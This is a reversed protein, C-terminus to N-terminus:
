QRLSAKCLIRRNSPNRCIFYKKIRLSEYIINKHPFVVKKTHKLAIVAYKEMLKFFMYIYFRTFM